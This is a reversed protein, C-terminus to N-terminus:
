NTELQKIEVLGYSKEYHVHLAKISNADNREHIQNGRSTSSNLRSIISNGEIVKRLKWVKDGGRGKDEYLISSDWIFGGGGKM